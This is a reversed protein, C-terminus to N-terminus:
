NITRDYVSLTDNIKRIMSLRTPKKVTTCSNRHLKLVEECDSYKACYPCVYEFGNRKRKINHKFIMHKSHSTKSRFIGCCEYKM